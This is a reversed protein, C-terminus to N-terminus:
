LIVQQGGSLISTYNKQTFWLQYQSYFGSIGCLMFDEMETAEQIDDARRTSLKMCVANCKPFNKSKKM